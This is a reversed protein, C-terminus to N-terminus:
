AAKKLLNQAIPSLYQSPIMNNAWQERAAGAMDSFPNFLKFTPYAAVVESFDGARM